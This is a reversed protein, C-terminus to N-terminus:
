KRKPIFELGISFEGTWKGEQASTVGPSNMDSKTGYGRLLLSRQSNKENREFRLGAGIGQHLQNEDRQQLYAVEGSFLLPKGIFHELTGFGRGAILNTNRLADNALLLSFNGIKLESALLGPANDFSYSGLHVKKGYLETGEPGSLMTQHILKGGKNILSLYEDIGNGVSLTLPGAEYASSTGFQWGESNKSARVNIQKINQGTAARVLNEVFEGGAELRVSDGSLNVSSSIGAGTAKIQAFNGNNSGFVWDANEINLAEMLTDFRSTTPTFGGLYARHPDTGELWDIKKNIGSNSNLSEHASNARYSGSFSTPRRISFDSWETHVEPIVVQPLGFEVKTDGLKIQAATERNFFIEKLPTTLPNKDQATSAADKADKVGPYEVSVQAAPPTDYAVM